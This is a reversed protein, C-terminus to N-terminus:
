EDYTVVVPAADMITGRYNMKIDEIYLKVGPGDTDKIKQIIGNTLEPGSVYIPGYLPMGPAIMTCKFETVRCNVEDALLQNYKLIQQRTTPTPIIKGDKVEPKRIRGLTIVPVKTHQQAIAPAAFALALVFLFTNNFSSRIIKHNTM